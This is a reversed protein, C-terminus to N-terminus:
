SQKNRFLQGLQQRFVARKSPDPEVTQMVLLFVVSDSGQASESVAAQWKPSRDVQRAPLSRFLEDGIRNRRLAHTKRRGIGANLWFQLSHDRRCFIKLQSFGAHGYVLCPCM